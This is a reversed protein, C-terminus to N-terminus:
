KEHEGVLIEKELVKTRKGKEIGAVKLIQTANLWSDSRRRMVAINNVEMEYVSVGSYVATYIQPKHGPPYQQQPIHGNVEGFGMFGSRQMVMGNQQGHSGMNFSMRQHHGRPPPPTAAPTSAVSQSADFSAHVGNMSSGTSNRSFSPPPHLPPGPHLTSAM